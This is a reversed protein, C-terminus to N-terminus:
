VRSAPTRLRSGFERLDAQARTSMLQYLRGMGTVHPGYFIPYFSNMTEQPDPSGPHWMAATVGVYGLWFTETHLGADAWGAVLAGVIDAQKRAPSYSIQGFANPVRGTGNYGPHLRESAPLIFYDPFLPEEGQISTYFM